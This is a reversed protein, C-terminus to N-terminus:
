IVKETLTLITGEDSYDIDEIRMPLNTLNYSASTISLVSGVSYGVTPRLVLTFKKFLGSHGDIFSLGELEGIRKAQVRFNSMYQGNTSSTVTAGNVTKWVSTYPYSTPYASTSSWYSPNTMRESELLDQSIKTNVLMYYQLQYISQSVPDEARTTIPRGNPDYGCKVVVYNYISNPDVGYRCSVMDTGETLVGSPNIEQKRICLEKLTNIYWYYNGDGTFENTLYKDLVVNLSKDFEAIKGGGNLASFALGDSKVSPNDANWSIGFNRNRLFISNRYADLFQMVNVNTLDVFGIGTTSIEGFSKGEIRLVKGKEGFEESINKITGNIVMNSSAASAGDLLLHMNINDQINFRTIANNDTNPIKFSFTDNLDGISLSVKCDFADTLNTPTSSWTGAGTTSYLIPLYQVRIM